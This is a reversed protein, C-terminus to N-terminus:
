PLAVAPAAKALKLNRYSKFGHGVKGKVLTGGKESCCYTNNGCSKSGHGVEGM